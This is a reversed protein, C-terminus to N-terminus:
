RSARRKFRGRTNRMYELPTIREAQQAYEARLAPVMMKGQAGADIVRWRGGSQRIIITNLIRQDGIVLHYNVVFTGPQAAKERARFGELRVKTLVAALYPDCHVNKCFTLLVQKMEELEEPSHQKLHEGFASELLADFDWANRLAEVPDGDKLQTAYRQAFQVPTEAPPKSPDRPTQEGAARLPLPTLVLVFAAVWALPSRLM